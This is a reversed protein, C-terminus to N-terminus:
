NLLNDLRLFYAEDYYDKLSEKVSIPSFNAAKLKVLKRLLDTTDGLQYSYGNKGDKVVDDIGEFNASVCPIGYSLAELAVMPLGEYKSTLVIANPHVDNLVDKWVNNTWDHFVCKTEIKLKEVYQTVKEKELQAGFLDLKIKGPYNAVGQFLERLNKQGDLMQRGIYILRLVDDNTSQNIETQAEIPNYILHIRNEDIGLNMMQEKISSSIAWHDDAFLIKQPNFMNQHLLSFHVWSTIQWHKFFLRRFKAAIEIINAGLVILHDDNKLSLLAKFLQKSRSIKDNGNALSVEVQDSLSTLWVQNDPLNTLIIKIRHQLILHNVVKVLVTETGGSGSLAPCIFVLRKM